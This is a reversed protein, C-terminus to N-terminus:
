EALIIELGTKKLSDLYNLSIDKDTILFDVDNIECIKALSTKHFKSKDSLIYVQNAAQISAQKVESVAFIPTSFGYEIDIGNVGIFAKDVKINKITNVAIQGITASSNRRISGGIIIVEINDNNLLVEATRISNTLITLGKKNSSTLLKALERVTSSSDLIIADNDDIFEYSKLAIRKKEEVNEKELLDMAPEYAANSFVMAGGHTRKLRGEKELASLDKRITVESANYTKSLDAVKVINNEKLLRLIDQKRQELLM